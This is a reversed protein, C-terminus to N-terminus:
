ISGHSLSRHHTHRSPVHASVLLCILHTRVYACATLAGSILLLPVGILILCLVWSALMLAIAYMARSVVYTSATCCADALAVAVYELAVDIVSGSTNSGIPGTPPHLGCVDIMKRDVIRICM